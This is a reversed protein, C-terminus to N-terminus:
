NYFNDHVEPNGKQNLDKNAYQELRETLPGPIYCM